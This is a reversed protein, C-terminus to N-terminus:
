VMKLALGKIFLEAPGLFDGIGAAIGRIGVIRQLDLCVLTEAAAVFELRMVCPGFREPVVVIVKCNIWLHVVPDGIAVAFVSEHQHIDNIQGKPFAPWVEFIEAVPFVPHDATPRECAIRSHVAAQRKRRRIQIAAPHVNIGPRTPWVQNPLYM